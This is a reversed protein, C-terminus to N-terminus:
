ENKVSIIRCKSRLCMRQTDPTVFCVYETTRGNKARATITKIETVNYVRETRGYKENFFVATM